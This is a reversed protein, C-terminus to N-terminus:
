SNMKQKLYFTCGRSKYEDLALLHWVYYYVVASIFVIAMNIYIDMKIDMEITDKEHTLLEALFM